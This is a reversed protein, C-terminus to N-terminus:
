AREYRRTSTVDGASMKMVMQDGEIARVIKSSFPGSIEEVLTDGDVTFLTKIERGDLYRSVFEVGNQANVEIPSVPTITVISINDGDISIDQVINNEPTLLKLARERSEGQVGVADLYLEFNDLSVLKWKGNLAAM